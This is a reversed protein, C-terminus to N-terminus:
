NQQLARGNRRPRAFLGLAFAILAAVAPTQLGFDVLGQLLCFVLAATAGAAWEAGSGTRLAVLVARALPTAVAGVLLAFGIIGNEELAQIFINHAAGVTRLANWNEPKAIHANIEHFAGFGHGLWPRELFARWHASILPAREDLETPLQAFRDFAIAGGFVILLVALAALALLTARTGGRAHDPRSPLALAAFCIFAAALAAVGSRSGTLLLVTLLLAIAVFSAPATLLLAAGRPQKASTHQLKGRAGRLAQAAILLLLVAAAAAAVNPSAMGATLRGAFSEAGAVSYVLAFASWALGLAVLGRGCLDRLARRESNLAGILYAAGIGAFSAAADLARFPAISASVGAQNTQAWIPHWFSPPVGSPAPTFIYARALGFAIFTLGLLLVPWQDRLLRASTRNTQVLLAAALIAALACAFLSASTPGDAGRAILGALIVILAAAPAAAGAFRATASTEGERDSM